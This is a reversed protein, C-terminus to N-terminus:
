TNSKKSIHQFPPVSTMRTLSDKTCNANEMSSSWGFMQRLKNSIIADHQMVVSFLNNEILGKAIEVETNTITGNQKCLISRILLNNDSLTSKSYEDFSLGIYREDFNSSRMDRKQSFLNMIRLIPHQVLLIARAKKKQLRQSIGCLSNM